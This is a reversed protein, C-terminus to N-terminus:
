ESLSHGRHVRDGQLRVDQLHFVAAEPYREGAGPPVAAPVQANLETDDAYYVEFM